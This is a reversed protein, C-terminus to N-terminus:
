PALAGLADVVVHLPTSSTVCMEGAATVPAFALTTRNKGPVFNVNSTTVSPSACDHVSAFGPADAQTATLNVVATTVGAPLGPVAIKYTTTKPASRSDFARAATLPYYALAGGGYSGEIDVVVHANVQSSVCISNNLGIPVISTNGIVEGAAYNVSSTDNEMGCAYIKAFGPGESDLVTLHAVVGETLASLGPVPISFATAKGIGRSDFIRQSPLKTLLSGMNKKFMGLADVIVDLGVNSKMCFRDTANVLTASGITEGQAFTVASVEPDTGCPYVKLYGAGQVNTVTVNLALATRKAEPGLLTDLGALSLEREVGAALPGQFKGPAFGTGDRSDVLRVPSFSVFRAGQPAGPPTTVNAGSDPTGETASPAPTSGVGADKKAPPTEEGDTGGFSQSGDSCAALAVLFPLALLKSPSTM